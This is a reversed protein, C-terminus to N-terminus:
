SLYNAFMILSTLAPTLLASSENKFLYKYLLLLHKEIDLGCFINVPEGEGARNSGFRKDVSQEEGGAEARERVEHCDM